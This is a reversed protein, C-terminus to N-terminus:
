KGYKLGNNFDKVTFRLLRGKFKQQPNYPFNDVFSMTKGIGIVETNNFINDLECVVKDYWLYNVGKEQYKIVDKHCMVYFYVTINKFVNNNSDITAGIEFNIFRKTETITEPVFEHPYVCKWPIEEEINDTDEYGLLKVLKPSDLIANIIKNRYEIIEYSRSKEM